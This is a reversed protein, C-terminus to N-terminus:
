KEDGRVRLDSERAKALHHEKYGGSGGRNMMLMYSELNGMKKCADYGFASLEKNTLNKQTM